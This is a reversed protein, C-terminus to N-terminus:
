CLDRSKYSGFINNNKKKAKPSNLFKIKRKGKKLVKIKLVLYNTHFNRVRM